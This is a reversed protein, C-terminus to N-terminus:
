MSRPLVFYIFLYVTKAANFLQPSRTSADSEDMWPAYTCLHAGIYICICARLVMTRSEGEHAEISQNGSRLVRCTRHIYMCGCTVLVQARHQTPTEASKCRRLM